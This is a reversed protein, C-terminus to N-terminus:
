AVRLSPMAEAAERMAAIFPRMKVDHALIHSLLWRYLFSQMKRQMQERKDQSVDPGRASEAMESFRALQDLLDQHLEQHDPQDPFGCARQLREEREFHRIAFDRLRKFETLVTECKCEGKSTEVISNITDFLVRHDDDIVSGDIAFKDKWVILM